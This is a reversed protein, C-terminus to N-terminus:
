RQALMRTMKKEGKKIAQKRVVAKNYFELGDIGLLEFWLCTKCFHYFADQNEIDNVYDYYEQEIVAYVLRKYPIYDSAGLM